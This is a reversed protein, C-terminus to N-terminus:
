RRWGSKLMPTVIFAKASLLAGKHLMNKMEDEGGYQQQSKRVWM